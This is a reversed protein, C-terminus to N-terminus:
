GGVGLEKATANIRAAAAEDGPFAARASSLAARVKDENGMVRWARALRLWGDLDRPDANLREQLRDVMGQIMASRQDNTMSAAAAVDQASPGPATPAPAAASPAAPAGIRALAARVMGLWPANPPADQAMQGWIAAADQRRGDQEAALGLFFRAKPMKPDLAVAATFAGVADQTVMGESRVVMAEGLAAQLEASSGLLRIAQAYARVADDARGLKLYVPALIEYGRGDNPNAALHDEVRRVLIAIDTGDPPAALRQALPLGPLDPSGLKLYLGAGIVPIVVLAAVAAMRRRNGASSVAEPATDAAALMRRAVEVRAAEVQEPPLRGAAQDRDLEALQDRYVALDAERAARETRRRSLPWLVAMVALATMLAFAAFLPASVM